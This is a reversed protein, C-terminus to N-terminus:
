QCILCSLEENNPASTHITSHKAADRAEGGSIGTVYWRKMGVSGGGSTFLDGSTKLHEKPSYAESTPFRQKLGFDLKLFM